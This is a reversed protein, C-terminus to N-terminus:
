YDNWSSNSIDGLKNATSLKAGIVTLVTATQTPALTHIMSAKALFQKIDDQSKSSFDPIGNLIDSLTLAMVTNEIFPEVRILPLNNEPQGSPNDNHAFDFIKQNLDAPTNSESESSLSDTHSNQDQQPLLSDSTQDSSQADTQSNKNSLDTQAAEVNSLETQNTNKNQCSSSEGSPNVSSSAAKSSSVFIQTDDRDELSTVINKEELLKFKEPLDTTLSLASLARLVKLNCNSVHETVLNKSDQKFNPYFRGTYSVFNNYSEILKAM